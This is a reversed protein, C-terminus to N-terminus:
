GRRREKLTVQLDRVMGAERRSVDLENVVREVGAISAVLASVREKQGPDPVSGTLRVVRGDVWVRIWKADVGEAHLLREYVASEIQLEKLREALEERETGPVMHPDVQIRDVVELVGATDRAVDLAAARIENSPVTGALTVTGEDSDVDVDIASASKSLALAAKVKATLFADESTDRVTEAAQALDGAVAKGADVVGEDLSRRRALYLVGILVVLCLILLGARVFASENTLKGMTEEEIKSRPARSEIEFHRLAVEM